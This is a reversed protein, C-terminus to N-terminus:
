ANQNWQVFGRELSQHYLSACGFVVAGDEKLIRPNKMETCQQTRRQAIEHIIRCSENCYRNCDAHLGAPRYWFLMGGDREDLPLLVQKRALQKVCSNTATLLGAGKPVNEWGSVVKTRELSPSILSGFASGLIVLMDQTDGLMTWLPGGHEWKMERQFMNETKFTLESFDWGRLTRSSFLSLKLGKSQRRINEATRLKQLDKMFDRIVMGLMKMQGDEIKRYLELNWYDKVVKYAEFGGDVAANLYPLTEQVGTLCRQLVNTQNLYTLAMHFVLSLEPVLWGRDEKRDYVLVPRRHANMLLDELDRNDELTVNLPTQVLWKGGVTTNFIGRISFGASMTGEHSMEIQSKSKPLLSSLETTAHSMLLDRTGLLVLAHSCYGLYARLEALQGINDTRIWDSSQDIVQIAEQASTADALHWQIGDELKRSPFLIISEGVLLTGGGYEMCVSIDAFRLLLPFPIELGVGEPRKRVPFGVALTARRLIQTWCPEVLHGKRPNSQIHLEYCGPISDSLYFGTALFPGHESKTKGRAFLCGLWAIQEMLDVIEVQPAEAVIKMNRQHGRSSVFKLARGDFNSSVTGGNKLVEILTDLFRLGGDGWTQAVYDECSMMQANQLSGTLTVVKRLDDVGSLENEVFQSIEWNAWIEIKIVQSGNQELSIQERISERILAGAQLLTEVVGHLQKELAMTLATGGLSRPINPNAGGDLLLAITDSDGREIAIHLLTDFFHNNVNVDAGAQILIKTIDLLGHQVAIHLPTSLSNSKMNVDAGHNILIKTIDLLGHQVAIHLPTILLNSKVNVDAGNELLLRTMDSLENRVAVHLPSESMRNQRMNVDTGNKLLQLVIDMDNEKVAKLLSINPTQQRDNEIKCKKCRTHGCAACKHQSRWDYPGDNCESCYWFVKTASVSSPEM